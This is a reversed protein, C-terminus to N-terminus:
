VPIRAILGKLSAAVQKVKVAAAPIDALSSRTVPAQLSIAAVVSGRADYVPVGVSRIGLSREQDNM